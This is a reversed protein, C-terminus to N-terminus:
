REKLRYDIFVAEKSSRWLFLKHAYVKKGPHFLTICLSQCTPLLTWPSLFWQSSNLTSDVGWIHPSAVCFDWTLSPPNKDPNGLVIHGEKYFIPTPSGLDPPSSSVGSSIPTRWKTCIESSSHLWPLICGYCGARVSLTSFNQQIHQSCVCWSKWM